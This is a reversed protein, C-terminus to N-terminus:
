DFDKQSGGAAALANARIMERMTLERAAGYNTRANDMRANEHLARLHVSEKRDYRAIPVTVSAGDAHQEFVTSTEAFRAEPTIAGGHSAVGRLTFRDGLDRAHTAGNAYQVRFNRDWTSETVAPDPVNPVVSLGRILEPPAHLAEPIFDTEGAVFPAPDSAAIAALVSTRDYRVINRTESGDRTFRTPAAHSTAPVIPAVVTARARAARKRRQLASVVQFETSSM